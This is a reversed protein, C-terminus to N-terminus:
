KKAELKKLHVPLVIYKKVREFDNIQVIYAEGQKALVRGTKGQMRKPFGASQVGLERSLAVSDGEDFSQFIKMLSVKGKARIRKRKQM